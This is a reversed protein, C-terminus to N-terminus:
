SRTRPRSPLVAGHVMCVPVLDVHKRGPMPLRLPIEETPWRSRDEYVFVQYKGDFQASDFVEVEDFFLRYRDIYDPGPARVHNWEHPNPEPYEITRAAVIPVPLVAFGGPRLVRRIEGIAERDDAVHELVHSAYVCDWSADAFPMKRVDARCDVGAMHLDVSLYRQVQHRFRDRFFPEPAIHLMEMRGFHVRQALTRMVLYQIRHRELAGCRGCQAHKRLGTVANRDIFAGRYGCVPCMFLSIREGGM